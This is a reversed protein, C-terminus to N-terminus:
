LQQGLREILPAAARLQRREAPTFGESLAEVIRATRDSRRNRLVELGADTVSLLSRRGDDPDPQRAVLGRDVLAAITAGMSQPRIRELKALSAATAPGSRDLNALASTEPASLDDATQLLRMRRLLVGISAQLSGAVLEIDPDTAM